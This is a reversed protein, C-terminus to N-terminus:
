FLYRCGVLHFSKWTVFDGHSGRTEPFGLIVKASGRNLLVSIALVINKNQRSSIHVDKCTKYRDATHYITFNLRIM